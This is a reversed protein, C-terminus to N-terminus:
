IKMWNAGGGQTFLKKEGPHVIIGGLNSMKRIRITRHQVQQIQM